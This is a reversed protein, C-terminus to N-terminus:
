EFVSGSQGIITSVAADSAASRVGANDGILVVASGGVGDAIAILIDDIEDTPLDCFDAEFYLDVSNSFTDPGVDISNLNSVKGTDVHSLHNGTTRLFIRELNPNEYCNLVEVPCKTLDLETVLNDYISLSSM